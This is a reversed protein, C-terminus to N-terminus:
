GAFLIALGSVIALGLAILVVYLIPGSLNIM